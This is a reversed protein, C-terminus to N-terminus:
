EMTDRGQEITCRLLEIQSEDLHPTGGVPAGFAARLKLGFQESNSGAPGGAHDQAVHGDMPVSANLDFGIVIEQSLFRSNCISSFDGLQIDYGNLILPRGLSQNRLTQAILRISQIVTSKGSSNLGSLVTVPFLEL